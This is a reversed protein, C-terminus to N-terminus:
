PRYIPTPPWNTEPETINESRLQFIALAKGTACDGTPTCSLTGTLGKFDKTRLLADRLAQRGIHLTGDREEYAVQELAQLILMMADYAHAHTGGALPPGYTADYREIFADYESGYVNSSTIYSGMAAEGTSKIFAVQFALNAMMLATQDLERIEQRAQLTISAAEETFVPYYLVDPSTRALRTLLPRMDAQGMEITEQMLIQGGLKRFTEAFALQLSEAYVSGNSITIASRSGLEHFAYHAALAGQLKDNHATRLYGAYSPQRNDATLSPDTNTPSVMILGAETLEPIAANAAASCSTGVVAVIQPNGVLRQAAAHGGEYRCREDESIHFIAHGKVAGYEEIAMEIANWSDLGLAQSSGSMALLSAVKIPENPTITVCGLEDQCEFPALWQWAVLAFGILLIFSALLGTLRLVKRKKTAVKKPKVYVKTTDLGKVAQRLAIRMEAASDFRDKAHLMLGKALVKALAPSVQPNLQDAPRLPDPSHSLHAHMRSIASPPTQKTLLHYLTASLAYLDSRADTGSGDMQEVPAYHLTYARVSPATTTSVVGGKALGFDLLFLKGEPTLKLNAPKIDRHIIPPQQHHLYDLTELLCDAYALVEQVSFQKGQALLEALDDGEIYEMVLYQGRGEVFHDIVRPLAPHRLHALVRAEREFAQQLVLKKLLLEKLAVIPGLRLDKAVYVAGMGGQGLRRVIRYRGLLIMNPVLM